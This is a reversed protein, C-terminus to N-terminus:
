AAAGGSVCKHHENTTQLYKVQSVSSTNCEFGGPNITYDPERILSKHFPINACM